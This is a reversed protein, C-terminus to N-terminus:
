KRATRVWRRFAALAKKQGDARSLEIFKALVEPTLMPFSRSARVEVYAGDRLEYIAVLKQKEVYRWIEPVGLAAYIPFKNLSENTVDIEVALDPPPDVTLDLEDNGIGREASAIHFSLDSETGKQDNQKKWTASGSSEISIDLEDAVAKVLDGIFEKYKEHRRLPSMIEVRGQDYTVRVGHRDTLDDLMREYADWTVNQLILIAGEPLHDIADTYDAIRIAM